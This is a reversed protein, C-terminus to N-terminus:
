NDFQKMWLAMHPPNKEEEPRDKSYYYLAISLRPDDGEWPVPHGHYADDTIRFIVVRNFIPPIKKACRSIDKDWLELEGNYETKWNENLYLLVNVRRHTQHIPHINFDAHIGLRGGKSTRHIGGGYFLPDPLLDKIGTVKEVFTIMEPSNAIQFFQKGLPGMRKIDSLGIKKTQTTTDANFKIYENDLMKNYGRIENYLVRIYLSDLFNDIVVHNYPTASIFQEHILDTNFKEFDM